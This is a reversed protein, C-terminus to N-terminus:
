SATRRGRTGASRRLPGPMTLELADGALGLRTGTLYRGTLEVLAPAAKIRARGVSLVPQGDLEGVAPTPIALPLWGRRRRVRASLLREGDRRVAFRGPGVDFDALEKPLNWIERGGARSREDDVYIETVVFPRAFVILEHYALTGGTYTALMVGTGFGDPILLLEGQLRWPPPPHGTGAM